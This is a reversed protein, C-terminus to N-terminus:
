NQLKWDKRQKKESFLRHNESLNIFDLPDNLNKFDKSFHKTNVSLVFSDTEMSHLQIHKERIIHNYNIM